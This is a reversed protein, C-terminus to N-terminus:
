LNYICFCAYESIVLINHILNASGARVNKPQLAKILKKNKLNVTKLKRIKFLNRM